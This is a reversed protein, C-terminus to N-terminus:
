KDNKECAKLYVWHGDEKCFESNEKIRHAKGAIKYRAVFQVFGIDNHAEGFSTSIIKLGLWQSDKDLHIDKPCQKKAWTQRLYSENSLVFASYRSRMLQEATEPYSTKNLFLECCSSFALGSGCYCPPTSM